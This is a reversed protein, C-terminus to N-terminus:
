ALPRTKCRDVMKDFDSDWFDNIACAAARLTMSSLFFISLNTCLALPTSYTLACGWTFPIYVLYTGIPKDFRGLHIYPYM